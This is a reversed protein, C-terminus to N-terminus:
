LRENKKDLLDNDEGKSSIMLLLASLDRSAARGEVAATKRRTAASLPCPTESGPAGRGARRSAGSHGSVVGGALAREGAGASLVDLGGPPARLDLWRGEVPGPAQFGHVPAAQWSRCWPASVSNVRTLCRWSACAPRSPWRRAYESPRNCKILIDPYVSITLALVMFFLKWQQGQGCM